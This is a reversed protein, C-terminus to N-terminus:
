QKQIELNYENVADFFKKFLELSCSLADFNQTLDFGRVFCKNETIVPCMVSKLEFGNSAIFSSCNKYFKEGIKDQKTIQFYIKNNTFKIIKYDIM